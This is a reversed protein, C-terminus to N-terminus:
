VHARGIQDAAIVGAATGGLSLGAGWPAALREPDHDPSAFGLLLDAPGGLDEDLDALLEHRAQGTDPHLSLRSTWNM